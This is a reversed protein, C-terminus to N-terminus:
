NRMKQNTTHEVADLNNGDLSKIGSNNNNNDTADVKICISRKILFFSHKTELYFGMCNVSSMWNASNERERDM